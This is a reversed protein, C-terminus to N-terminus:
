KDYAQLDLLESLLEKKETDNATLFNVRTNQAMLVCSLFLRPSMRLKQEIILQTKPHSDGMLPSGNVLFEVGSGSVPTGDHLKPSNTKPKYDKYRTIKYDYGRDEFE